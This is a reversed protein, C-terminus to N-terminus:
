VVSKRDPTSAIKKDIHEKFSVSARNRQGRFLSVRSDIEWGAIYITKEAQDIASAFAEFYAAGDVLFSVRLANEIRWCNEGEKLISGHTDM